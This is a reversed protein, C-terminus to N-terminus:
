SSINQFSWILTGQFYPLLGPRTMSMSPIFPDLARISLQNSLSAPVSVWFADCGPSSWDGPRVDWSLPVVHRQAPPQSTNQWLCVDASHFVGHFQANAAAFRRTLLPTINKKFVEPTHSSGLVTWRVHGHLTEAMGGCFRWNEEPVEM